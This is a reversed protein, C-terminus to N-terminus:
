GIIVTTGRNGVNTVEKYPIEKITVNNELVKQATALIQEKASPVVEYSGTYEEANGFVVSAFESNLVQESGGIFETEFISESDCILETKFLHECDM